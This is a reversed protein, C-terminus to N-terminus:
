AACGLMSKMEGLAARAAEASRMREHPTVAKGTFDPLGDSDDDANAPWEHPVSAVQRYLPAFHRLGEREPLKSWAFVDCDPHRAAALVAPHRYRQRLTGPTGIARCVIRWAEAADPAGTSDRCM